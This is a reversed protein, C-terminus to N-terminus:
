EGPHRNCHMKLKAPMMIEARGSRQEFKLLSRFQLIPKLARSAKAGTLDGFEQFVQHPKYPDFRHGM